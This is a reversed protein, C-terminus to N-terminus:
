VVCSSAWPQQSNATPQQGIPAPSVALFDLIKDKVLTAREQENRSLSLKSKGVPEGWTARPESGSASRQVIVVVIVQDM